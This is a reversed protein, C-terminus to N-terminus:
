SGALLTFRTTEQLEVEGRRATVRVEYPGPKFGAAPFMAVYVRRGDKEAPPLDPTAQSVVAGDRVFELKVQPAPGQPRGYVVCHLTVQGNTAATDLPGDLNPVVRIGEVQLPDGDSNSADAPEIRRVVTLSSLGFDRTATPVELGSRWVSIRGDSRDQAAVAVEYRGEGLRYARRLLAASKRTAELKEAPGQLLYDDRFHELIRGEDDRVLALVTLRGAFTAKKKDVTLVVQALTVEFALVQERGEAGTAFQLAQGRTAFDHPPSKAVLANALPLEDPFLAGGGPPLAFYGSRAQVTVGKRAVKVAIKRFRGDYASSAPAYALEYYGHLDGAVREMGTQLDNRNALLFGGTSEALDGMAGQANLRLADDVQQGAQMDASTIAGTNSTQSAAMAAAQNLATRAAASDSTVSLGRADVAYVSVNARNAESVTTRFLEEVTPPVKLGGAFYLISKRGSVSQQGKILALLPRLSTEGQVQRELTDMARYATAEFRALQVDSLGGRSAGPPGRASGSVTSTLQGTPREASTTAVALEGAAAPPVPSDGLLRRYREAAAQAAATLSPPRVSTGSTAADVAAELAGKDETFPQVIRLGVQSIQFVAM